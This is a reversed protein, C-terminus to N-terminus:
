RNPFHLVVTRTTFVDPPGPPFTLKLVRSTAPGLLEAGEATLGTLDGAAPMEYSAGGVGAVQLELRDHNANWQESVIKLNTSVSGAYPPRYPYVIGFDNRFRIRITTNESTIPVTVSAHQDVSNAPQAPQLPVSHGNAEASLVKARLSFAPAFELQVPKSGRRLVQLTIEDATRHYTLTLKTASADGAGGVAV